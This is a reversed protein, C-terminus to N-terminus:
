RSIKEFNVHVRFEIKVLYSILSIQVSRIFPFSIADCLYFCDDGIFIKDNLLFQLKITIFLFFAAM